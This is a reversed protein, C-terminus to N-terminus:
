ESDVSYDLELDHYNRWSQRVDVGDRLKSWLPPFHFRQQKYQITPILDPSISLYLNKIFTGM